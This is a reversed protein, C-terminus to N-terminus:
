YGDKVLTQKMKVEKKSLKNEKDWMELIAMLGIWSAGKWPQESWFPM